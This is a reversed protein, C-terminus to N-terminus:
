AISMPLGLSVKSVTLLGRTLTGTKDFVIHRVEPLVELTAGSKLLLGLRAAVSTAVMIVTPVALGIACPCSVVILSLAFQLAFPAATLGGTDVHGTACAAVWLVFTLVGSALIFPTFWSAIRDAVGQLRPRQAQAGEILSIIRAVTGMSPLSTVRVHVLGDVNTTGGIVADGFDKLVPRSEGTVMSEDVSTTGRVVIADAPFRQSPGVALVDGIHVLEPAISTPACSSLNVVHELLVADVPVAAQIENCSSAGSSFEACCGAPATSSAPASAASTMAVGGRECCSSGGGVIQGGDCCSSDPQKMAPEDACCPTCQEQGLCAPQAIACGKSACCATPSVNEAAEVLQPNIHQLQSLENLAKSTQRKSSAEVERGLAVLGLLIVVTEFPPEGLGAFQAFSRSVHCPDHYM